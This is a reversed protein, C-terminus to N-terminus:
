GGKLPLGGGTAKGEAWFIVNTTKYTVRYTNVNGLNHLSILEGFDHLSILKM